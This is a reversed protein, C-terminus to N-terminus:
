IPDNGGPPPSFVFHKLGGGLCTQIYEVHTHM